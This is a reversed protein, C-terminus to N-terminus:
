PEQQIRLESIWVDTAALGWTDTHLEVYDVKAPIEGSVKRFGNGGGLPISIPVWKDLATPLLNTEPEYRAREGGGGIIVVPFNGQWGKANDNRAAVFFQLAPRASPMWDIGLSGDRPVRSAFDFPANNHIHLARAFTDDDFTGECSAPVTSPPHVPYTPAPSCTGSWRLAPLAIPISSPADSTAALAGGPELPGPAAVSADHAPRARVNTTELAPEGLDPTACASLVLLVAAVAIVSSQM